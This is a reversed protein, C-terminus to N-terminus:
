RIVVARYYIPLLYLAGIIESESASPDKLDLAATVVGDGRVVWDHVDHEFKVEGVIDPFLHKELQFHDNVACFHTDYAHERFDAVTAPSGDDWVVIDPTGIDNDEPDLWTAILRRYRYLGTCTSTSSPNGDNGKRNVTWVGDSFDERM